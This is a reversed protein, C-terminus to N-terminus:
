RRRAIFRDIPSHGRSGNFRQMTLAASPPTREASEGDKSVRENGLNSTAVRGVKGEMDSIGAAGNARHRRAAAGLRARAGCRFPLSPTVM